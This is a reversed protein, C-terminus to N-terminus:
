RPAPASAPTSRSIGPGPQASGTSGTPAFPTPQALWSAINRPAIVAIPPPSFAHDAANFRWNAAALAQPSQQRMAAVAPAPLAGDTQALHILHEAVRQKLDAPLPSSPHLLRMFNNLAIAPEHRSPPEHERPSRPAQPRQPIPAESHVRLRAQQLTLWATLAAHSTEPSLPHAQNLLRAELSTELLSRQEPTMSEIHQHQESEPLRGTGPFPAGSLGLVHNTLREGASIFAGTRGDLRYGQVVLTEIGHAQVAADVQPPIRGNTMQHNFAVMLHRRLTPPLGMSPHLVQLFDNLADVREAPLAADHANSGPRCLRAAQVMGWAQAAQRAEPSLNPQDPSHLAHMLRRRLTGELLSLEQNSLRAISPPPYAFVPHSLARCERLVEQLRQAPFEHVPGERWPNGHTAPPQLPL